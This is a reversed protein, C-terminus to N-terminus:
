AVQEEHRSPQSAQLAAIIEALRGASLGDSEPLLAEAAYAHLVTLANAFHRRAERQRGAGLCLNGLAFHALAFEPELYLARGLAREAADREGREQCIVALLYHHAPNLKDAAIAQECWEIAEALRGEDACARARRQPANCEEGQLSGAVGPQQAPPGGVEPVAAPAFTSRAVNVPPQPAPPAPADLEAGEREPWPMEYAIAAARPRVAVLKRHLFAGPFGVATFASGQLNSSEAPGTILWGGDVLSRYLKNVVSRAKEQAFYMLVNRCLIVDMANTGNVLSPYADDALNLYSFTVMRRIRPQIEFRGDQRRTFYREKLWGPTDRFSWAGYVGRAAKRLAHPNIDTALITLNWSGSDPILRDVMMAISYPEEGTCCGASWIRLCRESVFRTRLLEPLLQQELIDLSERERLFYTEGVTLHSALEEIRPRTLPASLLWRIFAETEAYGSERSASAIGREMDRWRERPFHLGMQSELLDSLQALLADPLSGPRAHSM